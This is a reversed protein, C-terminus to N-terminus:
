IDFGRTQIGQNRQEREQQHVVAELAKRAFRIADTSLMPRVQSMIRDVSRGTAHAAQHIVRLAEAGHVTSNKHPLAALKAELAEAFREADVVAARARLLADPQPGERVAVKAARFEEALVKARERAVSTDPGSWQRSIWSQDENPRLAGFLGPSEEIDKVATSVDHLQCNADIAREAAAPDAYVMKLGLAYKDQVAAAAAIRKPLMTHEHRAAHVAGRADAIWLPLAAAELLHAAAYRVPRTSGRQWDAYQAASPAAAAIREPTALIRLKGYREPAETLGLVASETGNRGLEVDFARRAARPDRYLTTLHDKFRWVTERYRDRRSPPVTRVRRPV